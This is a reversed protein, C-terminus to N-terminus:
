HGLFCPCCTSNSPIYAPRCQFYRQASVLYVLTEVLILSTDPLDSSQAEPRAGRPSLEGGKPCILLFCKRARPRDGCRSACCFDKSEFCFFFLIHTTILANHPPFM